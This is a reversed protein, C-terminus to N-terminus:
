GGAAHALAVYDLRSLQLLDLALDVRHCIERVLPLDAVVALRRQVPDGRYVPGSGAVLVMCSTTSAETAIAALWLGIPKARKL